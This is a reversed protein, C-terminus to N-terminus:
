RGSRADRRRTGAAAPTIPSRQALVARQQRPKAALLEYDGQGAHVQIQLRHRRPVVSAGANSGNRQWPWVM